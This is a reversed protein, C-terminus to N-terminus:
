ANLKRIKANNEKRHLPKNRHDAFPLLYRVLACQIQTEEAELSMNAAKSEPHVELEMGFLLKIRAIDILGPYHFDKYDTGGPIVSM